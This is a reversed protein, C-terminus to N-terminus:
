RRGQAYRVAVPADLVTGASAWAWLSKWWPRQRAQMQEGQAAQWTAGRSERTRRRCEVELAHAVGIAPRMGRAAQARWLAALRVLEDDHLLALQQPTPVAFM